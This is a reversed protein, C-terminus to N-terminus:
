APEGAGGSEAPLEVEVRFSGDRAVVELRALDGYEARLRGRVSALGFGAGAAAPTEPDVPNSVELRLRGHAVAAAIRVTGGELLGAVGHKVANEVLPQLLLPPVLCPLSAAEVAEAVALRAGFRAREVALFRRVLGLELELRHRRVEGVSLFGRLLESLEQCVARAAAPERGALASVTTLANFLFHPHLGAKLTALEAERRALEAAFARREAARGAAVASALYHGAVALLYLVVGLSFVLEVQGELRAGSAPEFREVLRGLEWGLTAWAAASAAATAVHTAAARALGAPHLPLALCSYRAGLCLFAYVLALPLALTLAPLWDTEAAVALAGTLLAAVLLWGALYAGLRRRSELIPHM